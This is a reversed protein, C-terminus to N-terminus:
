ETKQNEIKCPSLKKVDDEFPQSGENRYNSGGKSEIFCELALNGLNSLIQRAKKLEEDPVEKLAPEIERMEELSIIDM